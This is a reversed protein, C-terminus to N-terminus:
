AQVRRQVVEATAHCEEQGMIPPKVSTDTTDPYFEVTRRVLWPAVSQGISSPAGTSVVTMSLAHEVLASPRRRSHPCAAHAATGNAFRSRLGIVIQCLFAPGYPRRKMFIAVSTTSFCVQNADIRLWRECSRLRALRITSGSVFHLHTMAIFM